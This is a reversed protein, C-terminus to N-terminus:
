KKPNLKLEAEQLRQFVTRLLVHEMLREFTAPANSLGFPMVIFQWLGEGATFATKEKDSEEM